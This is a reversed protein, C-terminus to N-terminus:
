FARSPLLDSDPNIVTAVAGQSICQRLDWKRIRKSESTILLNPDETDMLLDGVEFRGNTYVSRRVASFGPLLQDDFNSIKLILAGKELDRM